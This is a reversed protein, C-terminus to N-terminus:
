SALHVTDRGTYLKMSNIVTDVARDWFPVENVIRAKGYEFQRLLDKMPVDAIVKYMRDLFTFEGTFDCKWALKGRKVGQQDQFEVWTGLAMSQVVPFFRSKSLAPDALDQQFAKNKDSQKVIDRLLEQKAQDKSATVQGDAAENRKAANVCHIHIKELKKFFANIEEPEYGILLLGERLAHLLKPILALLRQREKLLSKPQVSWIMDDMVRIAAQWAKGGCGDRLGVIKMVEKWPGKLFEGILEPMPNTKIKRDIERAVIGKVELIMDTV